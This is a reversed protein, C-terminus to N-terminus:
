SMCLASKLSSLCDGNRHAEQQLDNV